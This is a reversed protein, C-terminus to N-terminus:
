ICILASEFGSGCVQLLPGLLLVTTIMFWHQSDMVNQHPNPDPNPDPDAVSDYVITDTARVPDLDPDAYRVRIRIRLYYM